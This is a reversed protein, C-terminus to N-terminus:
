IIRDMRSVLGSKLQWACPPYHLVCYFPPVAPNVCRYIPMKFGNIVGYHALQPNEVM